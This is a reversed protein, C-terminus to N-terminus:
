ARTMITSDDTCSGGHTFRVTAEADFGLVRPIVWKQLLADVDGRLLPKTIVDDFVLAVTDDDVNSDNAAPIAVSTVAVIAGSLGRSRLGRATSTGGLKPMRLDVLSLMFCLNSDAVASYAQFGDALTVIEVYNADDRLSSALASKLLYTHVARISASDDVVLVAYRRRSATDHDGRSACQPRLQMPSRSLQLTSSVPLKRLASRRRRQRSHNTVSKSDDVAAASGDDLIADLQRAASRRNNHLVALLGRLGGDRLPEAVAPGVDRLLTTLPRLASIKVNGFPIVYRWLLENAASRKLPASIIDDYVDTERMRKKSTPNARTDLSVLAVVVLVGNGHWDTVRAGLNSHSSVRVLVLRPQLNNIRSEAEEACAAAEIKVVASSAEAAACLCLATEERSEDDDDVVLVTMSTLANASRCRRLRRRRSSQEPRIIGSDNAILIQRQGRFNYQSQARQPRAVRQQQFGPMNDKVGFALEDWNFRSQFAKVNLLEQQSAGRERPPTPARRCVFRQEEVPLREDFVTHRDDIFFDPPATPVPMTCVQPSGKSEEKANRESLPFWLTTNGIEKMCGSVTSDADTCDFTDRSAEVEFDVSPNNSLSLWRKHGPARRAPARALLTIM